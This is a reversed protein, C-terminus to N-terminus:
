KKTEKERHKSWNINAYGQKYKKSAPRSHFTDVHSGAISKRHEKFTDKMDKRPVRM